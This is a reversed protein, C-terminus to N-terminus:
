KTGPLIIHSYGPKVARDVQAGQLSIYLSHNSEICAAMRRTQWLSRTHDESTTSRVDKRDELPQMCTCVIICAFANVQWRATYICKWIQSAKQYLGDTNYLRDNSLHRPSMSTEARTADDFVSADCSVHGTLM